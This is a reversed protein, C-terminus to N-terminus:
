TKCQANQLNHIKLNKLLAPHRTKIRLARRNKKKKKKKPHKCSKPITSIILSKVRVRSGIWKVFYHCLRFCVQM